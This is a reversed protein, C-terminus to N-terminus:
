VGKREKIAEVIYLTCIVMVGCLLSIACVVLGIDMPGAGIYNGLNLALFEVVLFVFIGILIKRLLNM